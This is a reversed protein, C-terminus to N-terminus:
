LGDPALYRLLSTSGMARVQKLDPSILAINVGFLRWALYYFQQVTTLNAITDFTLLSMIIIM